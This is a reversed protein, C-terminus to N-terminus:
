LKKRRPVAKGIQTIREEYVFKIKERVNQVSLIEFVLIVLKEIIIKTNIIKVNGIFMSGLLLPMNM